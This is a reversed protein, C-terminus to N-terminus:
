HARGLSCRYHVALAECEWNRGELVKVSIMWFRCELTTLVPKEQALDAVALVFVIAVASLVMPM